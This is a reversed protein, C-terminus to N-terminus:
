QLVTSGACMKGVTVIIIITGFQSSNFLDVHRFRGRSIRVQRHIDLPIAIEITESDSM